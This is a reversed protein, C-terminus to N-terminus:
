QFEPIMEYLQRVGILIDPYAYSLGKEESDLTGFEIFIELSAAKYPLRLRALRNEWDGEIRDEIYATIAAYTDKELSPQMDVVGNAVGNIYWVDLIDEDENEEM